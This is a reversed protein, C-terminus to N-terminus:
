LPPRSRHAPVLTRAPSWRLYDRGDLVGDPLDAATIEFEVPSPTMSLLQVEGSRQRNDLVVVNDSISVSIAFAATPSLLAGFTCVLALCDIFLRLPLRASICTM